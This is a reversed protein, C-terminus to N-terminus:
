VAESRCSSATRNCMTASFDKFLPHFFFVSFLVLFFEMEWGERKAKREATNAMVCVVDGYSGLFMLEVSFSGPPFPSDVQERGLDVRVKARRDESTQRENM